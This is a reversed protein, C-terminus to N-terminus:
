MLRLSGKVKIEIIAWSYIRVINLFNFITLNINYFLNRILFAVYMGLTAISCVVHFLLFTLFFYTQEM